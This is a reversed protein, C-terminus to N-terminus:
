LHPMGYLAFGDAGSGDITVTGDAAVVVKYSGEDALYGVPAVTEIMEYEGPTLYFFSFRGLEDSVAGAVQSGNQYLTYVAGQLMKGTLYDYKIATFIGTPQPKPRCVCRIPLLSRCRDWLNMM